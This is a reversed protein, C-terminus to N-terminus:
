FQTKLNVLRCDTNTADGNKVICHREMGINIIAIELRDTM